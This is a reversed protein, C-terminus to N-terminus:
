SLQLKQFKERDALVGWLAERSAAIASALSPDADHLLAIVKAFLLDYRQRLDALSITSQGSHFVRVAEILDDVQNKLSLKTFVGIAHTDKLREKLSALDLTPPATPTVVGRADSGGKASQAPDVVTSSVKPPTKIRAPPLSPNAVESTPRTRVSSAGTSKAAAIPSQVKKPVNESVISPPPNAPATLIAGAGPPAPAPTPEVHACAGLLVISLGFAFVVPAPKAV